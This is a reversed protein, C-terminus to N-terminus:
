KTLVIAAADKRKLQKSLADFACQVCDQALVISHCDLIGLVALQLPECNRADILVRGGNEVEKPSRRVAPSSFLGPGSPILDAMHVQRWEMNTAVNLKQVKQGCSCHIIRDEIFHHRLFNSNLLALEAGQKRLRFVSMRPNEEWFPELDVRYGQSAHDQEFAELISTLPMASLFLKTRVYPKIHLVVLGQENLPLDLIQGASVHHISLATPSISPRVVLDAVANIGNAQMGIAITSIPTTGSLGLLLEGIHDSLHRTQIGGRADLLKGIAGALYSLRGRQLLHPSFAVESLESAIESNYRLFHSIIGYVVALVLAQSTAFPM